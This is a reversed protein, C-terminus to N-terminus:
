KTTNQFELSILRESTAQRNEYQERAFDDIEGALGDERMSKILPHRNMRQYSARITEESGRARTRSLEQHAAEYADEWTLKRSARLHHVAAWRIQDVELQMRKQRMRPNFRNLVELVHPLLWVPAPIDCRNCIELVLELMDLNRGRISAECKSLEAIVKAKEDNSLPSARGASSKEFPVGIKEYPLALDVYTDNLLWYRAPRVAPSRESPQGGDILLQFVPALLKILAAPEAEALTSLGIMQRMAQFGAILSLVLAAREATQEGSLTATMAKQAHNEIQERGIEAARPSCASHLLILFGDLPLTGTKTQDILAAAINAGATPSKIIERTLISPTAMTSAVIEAFLQEKSGFYRNVLMATVGAENAIERVGVGRYGARAFARRASTLIAERTTAANRRRAPPSIKM